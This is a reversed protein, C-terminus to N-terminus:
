YCEREIANWVYHCCKVANPHDNLGYRNQIWELCKVLFNLYIEDFVSPKAINRKTEKQPGMRSRSGVCIYQICVNKTILKIAAMPKSCDGNLSVGSNTSTIPPKSDGSQFSNWCKSNFPKIAARFCMSRTILMTSIIRLLLYYCRRRKWGIHCTM